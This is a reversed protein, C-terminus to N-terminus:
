PQLKSLRFVEVVRLRQQKLWDLKSAPLPNLVRYIDPRLTPLATPQTDSSETGSSTLSRDMNEKRASFTDPRPAIKHGGATETLTTMGIVNGGQTEIYRRLNALTGGLGVHDDILLYDKGQEISGTFTAPTALRLWGNPGRIGSMTPSVFIM